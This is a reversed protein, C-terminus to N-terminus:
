PHYSEDTRMSADAYFNVIRHMSKFFNHMMYLNANANHHIMELM